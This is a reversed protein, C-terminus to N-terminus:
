RRADSHPSKISFTAFIVHGLTVATFWCGILAAGYIWFKAFSGINFFLACVILSLAAALTNWLLQRKRYYFPQEYDM